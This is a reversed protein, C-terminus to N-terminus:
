ALDCDDEPCFAALKFINSRSAENVKFCIAEVAAREETWNFTTNSIIAQFKVSTQIYSFTCLVTQVDREIHSGTACRM